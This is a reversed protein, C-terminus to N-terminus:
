PKFMVIFNFFNRIFGSRYFGHRVATVRKKLWSFHILHIYDAVIKKQTDDFQTEYRDYFAKAQSLRDSLDKMKLEDNRFAKKLATIYFKFTGFKKAGLTNLGHQRYYILPEHVLGIKGFTSAVLGIWWDHMLSEKPIPFSLINLSKNMMVTCGTVVNQILFRGTHHYKDAKLNSYKWFSNGLVACNKDVVKLDSHVLLPINNGHIRELRKMESYTKAIKENMWLDDQDSFMIYNAKAHQMLFSFNEKAGLNKESNVILIKNPYKDAFEQLIVATGDKSHDDCIILRFNQYSQNLISHIQENLYKEGNYTAMLIDIAEEDM